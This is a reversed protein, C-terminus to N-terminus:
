RNAIKGGADSVCFLKGGARIVVAGDVLAVGHVPDDTPLKSEAVLKASGASHELVWTTGDKCFVYVLDDVVVPTAWASAPLKLKWQFAGTEADVCTLLGAKSFYYVSGGVAVPAAFSSPPADAFWARELEAEGSRRLSLNGWKQSGALYVRDKMVLPTPVTYGKKGEYVCVPTGDSADFGEFRDKACVYVLERGGEETVVPSSWAVGKARDVKWADKGTRKDVALLYSPGDHDVLVVVHQKTQAISGGLGHNGGIPGFEEVLNRQWQVEGHHDTAVLNGSEFFAYVREADVAATPAAQSMMRSRKATLGSGVDRQWLKKGSAMDYCLVAMTEKHDGISTTTFVREGWVLPSSQGYGPLDVQWALNRETSWSLPLGRATSRNDGYGRFGPWHAQGAQRDLVELARARDAGTLTDPAEEEPPGAVKFRKMDIEIVSGTMGDQTAGGLVLLRGGKVAVLRHFFRGTPIRVGTDLWKTAGADIAMVKGEHGLAYVHDGVGFAASGFGKMYGKAPFNPGKAWTNSAIDYVFVERRTGKPAIGGIVFVKGGAAAVDAARRQFPPDAIQKWEFVEADLDAVWATTHWPTKGDEGELGLGWGGVVFLKGGHIVVNHSSRPQPLAPLEEWANAHPNFRAVADTSRVDKDEGPANHATMGGVRYVKGEYAFMGLGQLRPGGPLAQWEDPKDLSLRHFAGTQDATSYTHAKGTHGGYLYLSRGTVAVGFSSGAYPMAPWDGASNIVEASQIAPQTTAPQTTQARAEAHCLVVAAVLGALGLTKAQLKM